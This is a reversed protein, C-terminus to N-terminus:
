DKKVEDAIFDAAASTANTRLKAFNSDVVRENSALYPRLFSTYVFQAGRFQPLALYCILAAKFAYYFPFWYLLTDTWFEAVSFFAYVVWYTLWQTDDLKSPSEVAKFSAYAPYLFGLLNTLLAGWINLFILVTFFAGIGGFIYTKPLGTRREVEVAVPVKSLEVDLKKLYQQFKDSSM